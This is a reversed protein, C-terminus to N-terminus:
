KVPLPGIVGTKVINMWVEPTPELWKQAAAWGENTDPFYGASVLWAIVDWDSINLLTPLLMIGDKQVFWPGYTLSCPVYKDVQNNKGWDILPTEDMEYFKLFNHTLERPLIIRYYTKDLGEFPQALIFVGKINHKSQAIVVYPVGADKLTNESVSVLAMFPQDRFAFTYSGTVVYGYNKGEFCPVCDQSGMAWVINHEKLPIEDIHPGCLPCEKIKPNVYCNDLKNIVGSKESKGDSFLYGSDAVATYYYPTNNNDLTITQTGHIEQGNIFVTAHPSTISVDMWSGIKITGCSVQVNTSAVNSVCSTDEVIKKSFTNKYGDPWTVEYSVTFDEQVFPMTWVGSEATLPVAVGGESPTIESSWKNCDSKSSIPALHELVVLCENPESFSNYPLTISLPIGSSWTVVVNGASIPGETKYPDLWLGSINGSIVGGASTNASINYGDCNNINTLTASNTIVPPNCKGISDNEHGAQTTGNEYFHGLAANISVTQEIYNAPDDARGAVHCITIKCEGSRHESWNEFESHTYSTQTWHDGWDSSTFKTWVVTVTGNMETQLVGWDFVGVGTINTPRWQILSPGSNDENYINPVATVTVKECNSNDSANVDFPNWTASVNNTPVLIFALTALILSISFVIRKM